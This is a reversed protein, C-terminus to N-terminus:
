RARCSVIWCNRCRRTRACRRLSRVGFARSLPQGAGFDIGCMGSSRCPSAPTRRRYSGSPQRVAADDGDDLQWLQGQDSSDARSFRRRAPSVIGPVIWCRYGSTYQLSHVTGTCRNSAPAPRALRVSRRRLGPFFLVAAAASLIGIRGGAGTPGAYRRRGCVLCLHRSRDPGAAGCRRPPRPGHRAGRNRDICGRRNNRIADGRRRWAPDCRDCSSCPREADIAGDSRFPTPLAASIGFQM